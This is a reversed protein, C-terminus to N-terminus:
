GPAPWDCIADDAHHPADPEPRFCPAASSRGSEPSYAAAESAQSVSHSRSPVTAKTDQRLSIASCCYSRRDHRALTQLRSVSSSPVRPYARPRPPRTLPPLVECFGGGRPYLCPCHESRLQSAPARGADAESSTVFAEKHGLGYVTKLSPSSRRRLM